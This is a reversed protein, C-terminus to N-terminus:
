DDLLNIPARCIPCDNKTQIWQFLCKYHFLHGCSSLKRCNLLESMCIVCSQDPAAQAPRFFLTFNKILKSYSRYKKFSRWLTSTSLYFANLVSLIWMCDFIGMRQLCAKVFLRILNYYHWVRVSSGVMQEVLELKYTPPIENINQNFYCLLDRQSAISSVFLFLSDVALM